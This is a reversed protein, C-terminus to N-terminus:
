FIVRKNANLKDRYLYLMLYFVSIGGFLHWLWHTGMYLFDTELVKDLSRFSVALVFSLVASIILEKHKGNTKILYLVIPSLVTIATIVYGLSIRIMSPMPLLRITFSVAFILVLALLRKWWTHFLKFIFYFVAAMCLIMIPVWDMFLWIQHSRTGHFLTGGVFGIALVPLCFGLFAHRRFNKYVKVSFYIIIILFILNSFTNFPEVPLRSMLTERYIPGTDNPLQAVEAFSFLM